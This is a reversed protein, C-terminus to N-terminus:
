FPAEARSPLATTAPASVPADKPGIDFVLLCICLSLLLAGLGGGVCLLTTIRQKRRMEREKRRKQAM